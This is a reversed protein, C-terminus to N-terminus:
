QQNAESTVFSVVTEAAPTLQEGQRTLIGSEIPRVADALPRSGVRRGKTVIGSPMLPVVGVGLGAEVMRVITDTNSAETEIRPSQGSRHFAEMVHQRGTSGREYFILPEGAVRSLRIPSKGRLLAHGRRAILSWKMSFLHSFALEPSSEYPAAVGLAIEPDSLLEQEIESEIRSSLRVRIQPHAAHFRRVADILLYAILYQSAVVHVERAAPEAALTESFERARELFAIAQPLLRHGQPTLPAAKRVGRRKRYLEVGLQQELAILRNRVGQESIHLHEAAARLSGQRSVEVLAAVQDTSLSPVEHAM